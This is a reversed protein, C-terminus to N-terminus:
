KDSLATTTVERLTLMLIPWLMVAYRRYEAPVFSSLYGSQAEIITLVAGLLAVQYTKSQLRQKLLTLM